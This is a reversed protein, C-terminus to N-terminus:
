YYRIIYIQFTREDIIGPAKGHVCGCQFFPYSRGIELPEKSAAERRGTGNPIERPGGDISRPYTLRSWSLAIISAAKREM